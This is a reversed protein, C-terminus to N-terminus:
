DPKHISRRKRWKRRKLLFGRRTRRKRKKRISAEFNLM